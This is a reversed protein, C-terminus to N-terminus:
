DLNVSKYDAHRGIDIWSEHIPFAKLNMGLGLAKTFLDPMDCYIDKNLLKLLSPSIVYIGANVQQRYIPKEEIGVISNGKTRVIGFPNQWEQVRVAMLGDAKERHSQLLLDVYSVETILDANTVVCSHQKLRPPLNALAGATGLPKDEKIYEINVGYNTGDGFHDIIKEALYNVSIAINEFGEAKANSIIHELMPKGKVPLMPKPIKETLPMLRKGRGGAMVVFTEKRIEPFGLQDAVHLGVLVGNQDVIPLHFFHNLSMIIKAENDNLEPPAVLPSANMVDKVNHELSIHKLLAKRIDSDTIMGLLKGDKNTILAVQYGGQNIAELADSFSSELPLTLTSWNNVRRNM